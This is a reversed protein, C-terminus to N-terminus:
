MRNMDTGLLGPVEAATAAKRPPEVAQRRHFGGALRGTQDEAQIGGGGALRCPVAGALQLALHEQGRAADAPQGDAEGVVAAEAFEGGGGIQRVRLLQRPPHRHDGAEAPLRLDQAQQAVGQRLRFALAHRRQHEDAIRHLLIGVGEAMGGALKAQAARRHEDEM